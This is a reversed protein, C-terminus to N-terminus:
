LVNPKTFLRLIKDTKRGFKDNAELKLITYGEQLLLTDTFNGEKDLLLERDNITFHSAHPINGTITLLKSDLITGDAVSTTITTGFIADKSRFYAYVAIGLFLVTILTVKIFQKPDVM